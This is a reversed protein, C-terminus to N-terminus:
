DGGGPAFLIALAVTFITQIFFVVQDDGLIFNDIAAIRALLGNVVYFCIVPLAM